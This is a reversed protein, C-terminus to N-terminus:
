QRMRRFRAAGLGILLLGPVLMALTGPEPAPSTPGQTGFFAFHTQSTDAGYKTDSYLRPTEAGHNTWLVFESGPNFSVTQGPAVTGGFVLGSAGTLPDYWGLEDTLYYATIKALLKATVTGDATFVNNLVQTGNAGVWASLDAVPGGIINCNGVGYLCYGVGMKPGDSSKNDWFVTGNENVAPNALWQGSGNLLLGMGSMSYIMDNFAGNKEYGKSGLTDEVGGYYVTATGAMATAASLALAAAITTLRM